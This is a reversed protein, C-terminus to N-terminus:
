LKKRRKLEAATLIGHFVLDMVAQAQQEYPTTRRAFHNTIITGFLLDGIVECMQEVAFPRVRGEAILQRMLEYWREKDKQSDKQDFYTPQARDKFEAREQIFLEVLEPNADFFALYARLAAGIRDLPDEVAEAAADVQEKLREMGREVVALFLERKSPFYRYLTGKGVGLQDAVVQLDTQPFGREAFLRGATDLIEERRRAQLAEDRPRGPKGRSVVGM